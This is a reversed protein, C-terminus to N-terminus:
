KVVRRGKVAKRLKKLHTREGDEFLDKLKNKFVERRFIVEM